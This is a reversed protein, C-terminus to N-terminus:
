TSVFNQVFTRLNCSTIVPHLINDLVFYVEEQFPIYFYRPVYIYIGRAHIANEDVVSLKPICQHVYAIAM